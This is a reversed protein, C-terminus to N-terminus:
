RQLKSQWGKYRQGYNYLEKQLVDPTIVSVERVKRASAPTLTEHLPANPVVLLVRKSLHQKSEGSTPTSLMAGAAFHVFFDSPKGALVGVLLSARAAARAPGSEISELGRPVERRQAARKMEPTPVSEAFQRGYHLPFRCKRM